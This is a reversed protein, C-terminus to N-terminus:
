LTKPPKWSVWLLMKELLIKRDLALQGTGDNYFLSDM